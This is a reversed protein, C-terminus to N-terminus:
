KGEKSQLNMMASTKVDFGEVSEKKFIVRFTLLVIKIDEIISQNEIYMLDLRLKDYASTNYKGYIQAYGTLGGKVRMRYAFEPMEKTYQEVHEVREPRPGVFSMDGKLINILQPIEDIRHARIFSGVRTIRPDNEMCPRVGNQEADTIMSRFKLMEFVNGDKTCRLQRYFVPGQDEAKICIMVVLILPSLLTLFLLSFVIDMIRKAGFSKIKEYSYDYKMLPTDLLQKYSSGQNILDQLNPTYYFKKHKECCIQMLRERIESSVEYFVITHFRDIYLEIESDTEMIVKEVSFIHKYKKVLREGFSEVDTINEKKGYVIITKEPEIHRIFYQKTYVIFLISGLLQLIVTGIGPVINAYGHIGICCIFYLVLDAIGFSIVQNFILEPVSSSALKFAHYTNCLWTYILIFVLVSAVYGMESHRDFIKRNYVLVWVLAFLGINWVSIVLKATNTINKREM